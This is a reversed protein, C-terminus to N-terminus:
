LELVDRMTLSLDGWKMKIKLRNSGPKRDLEMTMVRTCNTPTLSEILMETKTVLASTKPEWIICHWKGTGFKDEQLGLMYNGPSLTTTNIKVPNKVSLRAFGSLFKRIEKSSNGTRITSVQIRSSPIPKYYVELGLSSVMVENSSKLFTSLCEAEENNTSDPAASSAGGWMMFLMICLLGGFLKPM